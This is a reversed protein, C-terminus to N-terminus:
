FGTPLWDGIRWPVQVRLFAFSNWDFVWITSCNFFSRCCLRSHCDYGTQAVSISDPFLRWLFSPNEAWNRERIKLYPCILNNLSVASSQSGFPTRLHQVEV